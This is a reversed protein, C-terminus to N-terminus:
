SAGSNRGEQRRENHVCELQQLAWVKLVQLEKIRKRLCRQERPSKARSLQEKVDVIDIVTRKLEQILEARNM